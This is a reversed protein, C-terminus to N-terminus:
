SGGTGASSLSGAGGSGGSGDAGSGVGVPKLLEAMDVVRDFRPLLGHDHTVMLLTAGHRTVQEFLQDLTAAATAPDLNGTPEDCLILDPETVLARCLAVRQREGQSLLSPRRDLVHDIGTARGLAEARGRAGDDLGLAPNVHYPLLLNERASLYELLEFEQFVMGIRRIRLARRAADDLASVVVDGLRVTGRDPLLIGAILNVLTTKGTGSPGITAVHEGAGLHLAPIALRFGGEPYAFDVGDLRVDM